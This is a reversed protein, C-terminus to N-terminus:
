ATEKRKNWDADENYVLGFPLPLGKEHDDRIQDLVAEAWLNADVKAERYTDVVPGDIMVTYCNTHWTAGAIPAPLPMTHPYPGWHGISIVDKMEALRKAWTDREMAILLAREGVRVWFRSNELAEEKSNFRQTTLIQVPSRSYVKPQWLGIGDNVLGAVFSEEGEWATRSYFVSKTM